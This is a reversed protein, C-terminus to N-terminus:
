LKETTKSDIAALSSKLLNALLQKDKNAISSLLKELLVFHAPYATNILKKGTSTLSVLVKRRDQQCHKRQILMKKELRDLRSTMAGSTLLMSQYLESPTLYRKNERKLTALVDFEGPKLDFSRHLEALQQEITKAFRLIRGIAKIADVDTELGVEKWQQMIIDLDDLDHPSM